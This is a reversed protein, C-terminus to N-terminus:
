ICAQLIQVSKICNDKACSNWIENSNEYKTYYYLTTQEM